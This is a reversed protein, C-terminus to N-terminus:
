LEVSSQNHAPRLVCPAGTRRYQICPIQSLPISATQAIALNPAVPPPTNERRLSSAPAPTERLPRADETQPAPPPRTDRRRLRSGTHPDRRSTPASSELAHTEEPLLPSVRPPPARPLNQRM